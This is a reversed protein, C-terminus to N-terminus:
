DRYIVVSEAVAIINVIESRLADISGYASIATSVLNNRPILAIVFATDTSREILTFLIITEGNNTELNLLETTYDGAEV